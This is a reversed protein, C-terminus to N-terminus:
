RESSLLLATKAISAAAIEQSFNKIIRKSQRGFHSRVDDRDVLVQIAHSLANIDGFPVRFGNKDTVLDDGCGVLDSVIVPKGYLMAENVVLGWTEGYGSPLVFIDAEAYFKPLKTQNQFQVM